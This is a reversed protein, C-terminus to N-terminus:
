KNQTLAKKESMYTWTFQSIMVKYVPIIHESGSMYSLLTISLVIDFQKIIIFLDTCYFYLFIFYAIIIFSYRIDNM